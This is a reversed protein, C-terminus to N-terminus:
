QYFQNNWKDVADPMSWNYKEVFYPTAELIDNRLQNVQNDTANEVLRLLKWADQYSSSANGTHGKAKLEIARALTSFLQDTLADLTTLYGHQNRVIKSFNDIYDPRSNIFDAIDGQYVLKWDDSDWTTEYAKLYGTKDLDYKFETDGHVDHHETFSAQDNGRLFAEALGGKIQTTVMNYFYSAAGELYGDWHIYFYHGDIQYTARTGM